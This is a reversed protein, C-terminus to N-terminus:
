DSRPAVATAQRFEPASKLKRLFNDCKPWGGQGEATAEPGWVSRVAAEILEEATKPKVSADQLLKAVGEATGQTADKKVAKVVAQFKAHEVWDCASGSYSEVLERLRGPEWDPTGVRAYNHGVLWGLKAQFVESLQWVKAALLKQYHEARLTISVRLFACLDRPMRADNDAKLFFYDPLNNNLLKEVERDLNKRLKDTVFRGDCLSQGSRSAVLSSLEAKIAAAADRVVAITVYPSKCGGQRLVLDCSQTLVIFNAYKLDAFHPHVVKLVQVLEETRALIDGQQLCERDVNSEQAYTWHM